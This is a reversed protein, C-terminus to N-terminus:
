GDSALKKRFYLNGDQSHTSEFGNQLYFEIAEQWTATTELIAETYGAQSARQCLENLIKRGIGHRRLAKKVSMRVNEVQQESRPIFAGTGVIEDDQWAVLFCGAAYHNAIDELDPNKGEDLFGWHEVLGDLILAKAASQDAPRFPVIRLTM